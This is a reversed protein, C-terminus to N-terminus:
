TNGNNKINRLVFQNIRAWDTKAAMPVLLLPLVISRYRVIAGLNNVSYGIMFLVGFSFFLSFLLLPSLPVGNKRWVIFVLFFLLLLTIELAAALSLLHRVDSPYPRIAALSLAQPANLLFSGLTPKLEKVAVSSGGELQIFEQQKLVVSKPLDINPNVYKTIFAGAIFFLFVGTFVIV